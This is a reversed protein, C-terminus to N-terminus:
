DMDDHLAIFIHTYTQLRINRILHDLDADFIQSYTQGLEIGSDCLSRRVTSASIGSAIRRNEQYPYNDIKIIGSVFCYSISTSLLSRNTYM